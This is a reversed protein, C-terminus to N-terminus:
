RLPPSRPGKRLPPLYREKQEETGFLAIPYSGLAQVAFMTDALVWGRALEERIVCLDRAQAKARVGGFEKPLAYSLFGENGLQRVLRRAVDDTQQEEGGSTFLNKETWQRVRARLQFHDQDFFPLM